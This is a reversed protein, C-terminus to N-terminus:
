LKIGGIFEGTVRDFFMCGLVGEGPTGQPVPQATEVAYHPRGTLKRALDRLYASRQPVQRDLYERYSDTSLELFCESDPQDSAKVQTVIGAAKLEKTVGPTAQEMREHALRRADDASIETAHCAAAALLLMLWLGAVGGRGPRAKRPALSCLLGKM